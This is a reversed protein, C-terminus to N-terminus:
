KNRCGVILRQKFENSFIIYVFGFIYINTKKQLAVVSIHKTKKHYLKQSEIESHM